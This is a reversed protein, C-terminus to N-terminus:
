LEAILKRWAALEGAPAFKRKLPSMYQCLSKYFEKDFESRYLKQALERANRIEFLGPYDRGLLGLTATIRTALIPVGNVVAESIVSPAGEHLSTILTLRSRALRRQTMGHTRSGLWQYRPNRESELIARRSMDDSLASGIHVIRVKSDSPLLKVAKAALFPDKIPRLHGILTVEFFRKLPAPSNRVPIASQLIVRSKRADSATLKKKSEPELLVIRNARDLTQRVKRSKPFDRHLDTGTMVVVIPKVPYDLAFRKVVSASHKAHLAILLDFKGISDAFPQGLDSEIQVRHGLKRLIRAYRDATIRNGLTTGKAAPTTVLINM